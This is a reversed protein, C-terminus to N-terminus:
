EDKNWNSPLFSLDVGDGLFAHDFGGDENGIDHTVTFDKVGRLQGHVKEGTRPDTFYGYVAVVEFKDGQGLGVTAAERKAKNKADREQRHAEILMETEDNHARLKEETFTKFVQTPHELNVIGYELIPQRKALKEAEKVADAYRIFVESRRFYTFAEEPIFDERDYGSVVDYYINDIACAAVVRYEFDSDIVPKAAATKLIYIGNDASM